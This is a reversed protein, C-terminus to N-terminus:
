LAKRSEQGNYADSKEKTPVQDKKLCQQPKHSTNGKSELNRSPLSYTNNLKSDAGNYLVIGSVYELPYELFDLSYTSNLNFSFPGYNAISSM